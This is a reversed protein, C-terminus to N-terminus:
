PAGGTPRPDRSPSRDGPFSDGAARGPGFTKWAARAVTAIKGKRSLKSDLITRLAMRARHLRTKVASETIGLMSAASRTDVQEIDRLLIVDRFDDPLQHISERVAALTEQREIGGAPTENWFVPMSEHHGNESFRPLLDELKLEPRRRRTRLKMLSANVVIRHLWTTVRSQGDFRPLAKFASLFADQVADQADEEEPLFRRAVVLLRGTSERVLQEFAAPDGARLRAVFAPDDASDPPPDASQLKSDAPLDM